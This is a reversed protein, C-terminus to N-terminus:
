RLEQRASACLHRGGAALWAAFTASEEKGAAADSYIGVGWRYYDRTEQPWNAPAQGIVSAGGNYCALTLGIVGGAASQCQKLFSASRKANTAPDLMNEGDAFHFPMVQFLGQAGAGSIVTPHGCSEIQMVTALLNPEVDYQAAWAGLEGAWHQVSPAFFDALDAAPQGRVFRAIDGWFASSALLLALALPLWLPVYYVEGRKIIKPGGRLQAWSLRLGTGLLRRARALNQSQWLKRLGRALDKM